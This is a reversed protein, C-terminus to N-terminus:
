DSVEYWNTALQRVRRWRSVQCDPREVLSVSPAYVRATHKVPFGGGWFFYARFGCEGNRRAWVRYALDSWESPIQINSGGIDKARIWAAAKEYRPLDRRFAMDRVPAAIVIAIGAGLVAWIASALPVLM